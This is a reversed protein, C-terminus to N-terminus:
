QPGEKILQMARRTGNSTLTLGQPTQEIYKKRSLITELDAIGGPSGLALELTKRGFAKRGEGGRFDKSREFMHMLMRCCDDDLGDSTLEALYVAKEADGVGWFGLITNMTRPNGSAARLVTRREEDDNFEIEHREAIKALIQVEEEKTYSILLKVPFRSMLTQPMAGRNTTAGFVRFNGRLGRGGELTNLLWTQDAYSHIEDLLLFTLPGEKNLQDLIENQESRDPKSAVLILKDVGLHRAIAMGLSTKGHGGTGTLALMNRFKKSTFLEYHIQEQTKQPLILDDLALERELQKPGLIAIGL